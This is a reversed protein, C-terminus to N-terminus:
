GLKLKDLLETASLEILYQEDITLRRIALLAHITECVRVFDLAEKGIPVM